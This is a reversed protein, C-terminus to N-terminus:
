LERAVEVDRDEGERLEGARDLLAVVLARDHGGQALGPRDLLVGVEDHEDVAVLVVVVLRILLPDGLHDQGLVPVPRGVRDLEREELPIRLECVQRGGSARESTVDRRGRLLAWMYSWRIM